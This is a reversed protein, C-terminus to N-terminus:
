LNKKQPPITQDRLYQKENHFYINEPIVYKQSPQFELVHRLNCLSHLRYHGLQSSLSALAITAIEQRKLTAETGRPHLKFTEYMCIAYHLVHVSGAFLIEFICLFVYINSVKIRFIYECM